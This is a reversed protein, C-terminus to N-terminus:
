DYKSLRNLSLFLKRYKSHLFKEFSPIFIRFKIMLYLKFVFYKYVVSGFKKKLARLNWVINEIKRKKLETFWPLNLQHFDMKIWGELSQPQKFGQRLCEKYLDTGPFPTYSSLCISDVYKGKAAIEYILGMTQLIDDETEEPFGMMFFYNQHIGNESLKRHVELAQERTIGKKIYKLIKNSGSEVGLTVSYWGSKKLLDIFGQDFKYIFDVRCEAGWKIDINEKIIREAIEKVRKRDLFFNDELWMIGDVDYDHIVRHLNNFIHEISSSRWRSKNFSQNYCYRCRFTCGRSTILEMVRKRDFRQHIYLNMDILHYPLDPINDLNLHPREENVVIEDDQKFALGKVEALSQKGELAKVLEIITEEGEGIIVFDISENALTQQPLITPHVGGWVVPINSHKKIFQSFILGYKIQLGTMSSVGFLIPKSKIEEEVLSQWNPHTIEDIIRVKYGEKVLFSSVYILGWPVGPKAIPEDTYIPRFLVVDSM